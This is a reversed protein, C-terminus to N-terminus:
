KVEAPAAEKKEEVLLEKRPKLLSEVTYTPLQYIWSSFRKETALKEALKALNEKFEKDLKAKDGAKEDKAVVREVALNASVLINIPYNGNESTGIKAVYTFGDFTEVTLTTGAPANSANLVAVDSFSASSFPSTVGSVKAPDLKEDAKADALQWDNTEAARALKWSNTAEAFQLTITRPKEIHIFDKNLWAEPKPQVNDLPDSVVALAKAGSGVMVYRGDPWGEDGGMGGFQGGRAKNMHKKGLLVSNRTKGSQDKFQIQTATKAGAGPPLLEFRGLQSAGVEETQVMKLDAFKLLLRSIESFNAPYDNRERVCWVTDRRALNLESGGAKVTIQTIDNVPLDPLLKRGIAQGASQWSSQGRQRIVLGTAGIVVVLVLLIIFQKRNM